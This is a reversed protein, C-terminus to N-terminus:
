AEAQSETYFSNRRKQFNNDSLVYEQPKLDFFRQRLTKLMRTEKTYPIGEDMIVHWHGCIEAV